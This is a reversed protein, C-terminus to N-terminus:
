ASQILSETPRNTTTQRKFSIDLYDERDNTVKHEDCGDVVRLLPLVSAKQRALSKRTRIKADDKPSKNKESIGRM